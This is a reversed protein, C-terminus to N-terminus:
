PKKTEYRNWRIAWKDPDIYPVYYAALNLIIMLASFFFLGMFLAIGLHMLLIGALWYKRLRPLNMCVAYGMELILTIWSAAAFFWSQPTFDLSVISYYNHAHLAKWLAEGNLWSPGLAKDFGSFFYAIGLHARLLRLYLIHHPVSAPKKRLRDDVSYISGVPFVCCYFLGITTFFDVGYQYLHISGLFLLQFFLSLVASVRTGAGVILLLLVVPYAFRSFSVLTEYSLPLHMQQLFAQLSYFTPTLHDYSADLIDPYVYSKYSYLDAFDPQISLFHLLAFGAINIRFFFLWGPFLPQGDPQRFITPFRINKISFVM